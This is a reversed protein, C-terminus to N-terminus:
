QLQTIQSDKFDTCSKKNFRLLKKKFRRNLFAKFSHDNWVEISTRHALRDDSQTNLDLEDASTKFKENIIENTFSSENTSQLLFSNESSELDSNEMNLTKDNTVTILEEWKEKTLERVNRLLSAKQWFIDSADTMAFFRLQTIHYEIFRKVDKFLTFHITYVILTESDDHYTSTITYANNDYTTGSDVYSQLKHIECADLVDDYLAQNKCVETNDNFGKGKTFFNLLCSAATNMSSVIYFSLEEWIRKDLDVSWSEDYLDSQTKIIFDDILDKLKEFSLNKQSSINITDIIISFVKSM